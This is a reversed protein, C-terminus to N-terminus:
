IPQRQAYEFHINNPRISKEAACRCYKTSMIITDVYHPCLCKHFRDIYFLNEVREREKKRESVWQSHASICFGNAYQKIKNAYVTAFSFITKCRSRKNRTHNRIKNIHKYVINIQDLCFELTLHACFLLYVRFLINHYASHFVLIRVREFCSSLVASCETSQPM